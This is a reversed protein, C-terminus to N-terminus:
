SLDPKCGQYYMDGFLSLLHDSIVAIVSAKAINLRAAIDTVRVSEVKESL